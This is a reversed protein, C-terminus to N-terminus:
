DFYVLKFLLLSVLRIGLDTLGSPLQLNLRLKILKFCYHIKGRIECTDCADFLKDHQHGESTCNDWHGCPAYKSCCDFKKGLPGVTKPPRMGSQTYTEDCDFPGQPPCLAEGKSGTSEKSTISSCSTRPSKGFKSEEASSSLSGADSCYSHKTEVDSEAFSFKKPRPQLNEENPKGCVECTCYEQPQMMLNTVDCDSM